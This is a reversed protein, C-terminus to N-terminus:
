QRLTVLAVVAAVVFFLCGVAVQWREVQTMDDKVENFGNIVLFVGFTCTLGAAVIWATTNM